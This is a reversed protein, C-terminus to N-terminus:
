RPQWRAYALACSVLKSGAGFTGRWTGSVKSRGGLRPRYRVREERLRLGARVAKVLMEVTWGYTREGLELRRLCDARIVKYSPLDRLRRGLLPALLALVLRNGLRAHLPLAAPADAFPERCGLVLDAEDALVPALLRGLEGPPDSYDGDLFAVVEAGAELAARAGTWCAAGYGPEAQVLPRAGLGAAIAATPDKPGGVVVFVDDVLGPPVEALVAAISEAENWAPIVLAV